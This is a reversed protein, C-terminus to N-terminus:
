VVGGGRETSGSTATAACHWELWNGWTGPVGPRHRRVITRLSLVRGPAHSRGGRCAELRLGLPGAIWVGTGTRLGTRSPSVGLLASRPRGRAKSSGRGGETDFRRKCGGPERRLWASAPLADNRRNLLTRDLAPQGYSRCMSGSTRTSCDQDREESRRQENQPFGLLATLFRMEPGPAPEVRGSMQLSHTSRQTSIMPSASSAAPRADGSYGPQDILQREPVRWIWPADPPDEDAFPPIRADSSSGRGEGYRSSGIM